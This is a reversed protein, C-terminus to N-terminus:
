SGPYGKCGIEGGKHYWEEDEVTLRANQERRNIRFYIPACIM